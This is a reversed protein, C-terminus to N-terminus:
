GTHDSNPMKGQLSDPTFVWQSGQKAAIFTIPTSNNDSQLVTNVVIKGDKSLVYVNNLDLVAPYGWMSLEKSLRPNKAASKAGDVFLTQIKQDSSMKTLDGYTVGSLGSIAFIPATIKGKNTNFAVVETRGNMNTFKPPISSALYGWAVATIMLISGVGQGSAQFKGIKILAKEPAVIRAKVLWYGFCLALVGGLILLLMATGGIAIVLTTPEM